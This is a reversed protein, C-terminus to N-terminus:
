KFHSLKNVTTDPFPKVLALADEKQEDSLSPKYGHEDGKYGGGIDGVSPNPTGPNYSPDKSM